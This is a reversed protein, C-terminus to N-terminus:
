PGYIREIYEIATRTLVLQDYRLIDYLNLGATKLVKIQPVNRASKQLNINEGDIVILAKNLQLKNKHVLFQKTKIEALDFNDLVLLADEKLRLSLASRLAVKKLKKPIQFSYDRPKPGFITGGGRWIPSTRTGSRARGTGKQRWPKTGSGRVESRTKTCATGRRKSALQKRVVIHFLHPKPELAFIDDRLSIEGIKQANIDLVDVDPM